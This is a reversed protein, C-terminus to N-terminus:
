SSVPPNDLSVTAGVLTEGTRADRIYGAVTGRGTRYTNTKPGIVFVRNELSARLKQNKQNDLYNDVSFASERASDSVPKKSNFFDEPLNPQITFKETIFVNNDGDIAYHFDTHALVMSLIAPLTQDQVSFDLVISDTESAKFYFRYDSQSEIAQAFQELKMGRFDGSFTKKNQAQALLCFCSGMFLFLLNRFIYQM